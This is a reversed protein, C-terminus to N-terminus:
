VRSDRNLYSHVASDSNTVRACVCPTEPRIKWIRYFMGLILYCRYLWIHPVPLRLQNLGPAVLRFTASEIGSNKM